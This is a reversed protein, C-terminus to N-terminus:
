LGERGVKLVNELEGASLPEEIGTLDQLRQSAFTVSSFLPSSLAAAPETLRNLASSYHQNEGPMVTCLSPFAFSMFNELPHMSLKPYGLNCLEM